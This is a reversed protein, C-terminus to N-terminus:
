ARGRDQRNCPIKEVDTTKPECLTPHQICVWRIELAASPTASRAETSAVGTAIFRKHTYQPSEGPVSSGEVSTASSGQDAPHVNGAERDWFAAGAAANTGSNQSSHEVIDSGSFLDDFDDPDM